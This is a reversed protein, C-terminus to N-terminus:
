KLTMKIEEGKIEVDLTTIKRYYYSNKKDNKTVIQMEPDDSVEHDVGMERFGFTVSYSDLYPNKLRKEVEYQWIIFLDSAFSECYRGAYQILKTLISSYNISWMETENFLSKYWRGYAEIM